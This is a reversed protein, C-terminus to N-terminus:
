VMSAAEQYVLSFCFETAQTQSGDMGVSRGSSTLSTDVKASLPHRTTLAAFGLQRIRPNRSRSINRINTLISPSTWIQVTVTSITNLSVIHIQM